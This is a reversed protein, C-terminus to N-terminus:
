TTLLNITMTTLCHLYTNTNTSEDYCAQAPTFIFSSCLKCQSSPCEGTDGSHLMAYIPASSASGDASCLSGAPFAVVSASPTPAGEVLVEFLNSLTSDIIVTLRSLTTADGEITSSGEVFSKTKVTLNNSLTISLPESDKADGIKDVGTGLIYIAGGVAGGRCGVQAVESLGGWKPYVAAFGPGFVGMSTLHRSIANLGNEVSVKGDLSMTLTVIYSQLMDDFKFESALFESLPADKHPIWVNLQEEAKYDLVFKLFKMLGRKSKMSIVKNVFVDERTSPIRNLTPKPEADSGQQYVYFSGVALFELQRFAKSSVLKALLDSRTHILQPALALSYARSSSLGEDSKSAEAAAFVSNTGPEKHKAVWEDADQM